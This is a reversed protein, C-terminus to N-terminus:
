AAALRLVEEVVSRVALMGPNVALQKRTRSVFQSTLVLVILQALGLGLGLSIVVPPSSPPAAPLVAIMM